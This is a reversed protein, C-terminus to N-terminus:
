PCNEWIMRACFLYYFLFFVQSVRVFSGVEMSVAPMSATARSYILRAEIFALISNIYLINQMNVPLFM